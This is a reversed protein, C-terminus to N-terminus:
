LEEELKSAAANIEARLLGLNCKPTASVALFTVEDINKFFLKANEAELSLLETAGFVFKEEIISEVTNLIDASDAGVMDLDIDQNWINAIVLGDKGVIMSGLVGPTQNIEELINEM